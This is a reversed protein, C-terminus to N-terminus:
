NEELVLDLPARICWYEFPIDKASQKANYLLYEMFDEMTPMEPHSYTFKKEINKLIQDFAKEDMYDVINFRILDMAWETADDSSAPQINVEIPDAIFNGLDELNLNFAPITKTFSKVEKEKMKIDRYSVLNIGKQLPGGDWDWSKSYVISEWVEELDIVNNLPLSIESKNRSLKLFSGDSGVTIESKYKQSPEIKKVIDSIKDIWVEEIKENFWVLSRKGECESLIEPIEKRADPEEEPNETNGMFGNKNDIAKIEIFGSTIVPDSSVNILYKGKEPMFVNGKAAEDGLETLSGNENLFGLQQYRRIMNSAMKHPENPLLEKIIRDEDIIGDKKALKLVTTLYSKKEKVRITAICEYSESEIEKRLILKSSVM